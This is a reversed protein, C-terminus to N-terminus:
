RTLASRYVQLLIITAINFRFPTLWSILAGVIVFICRVKRARHTIINSSRGFGSNPFKINMLSHIMATTRTRKIM